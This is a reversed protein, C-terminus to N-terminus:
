DLAERTGDEVGWEAKGDVGDGLGGPWGCGGDIRWGGTSETM